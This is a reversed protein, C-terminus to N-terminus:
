RLRDRPVVDRWEQLNTMQPPPIAGPYEIALIPGTVLGEVMALGASPFVAQSYSIRHEVTAPNDAMWTDLLVTMGRQVVLNINEFGMAGAINADRSYIRNGATLNALSVTVNANYNGRGTNLDLQAPVGSFPHEGLRSGDFGDAHNPGRSDGFSLVVDDGLNAILPKNDPTRWFQNQHARFEGAGDNTKIPADPNSFFRRRMEMAVQAEPMWSGVVTDNHVTAEFAVYRSAMQASHSIDQYKAILPTLIFVPMLAFCVVYFEALAQGRQRQEPSVHRLPNSM